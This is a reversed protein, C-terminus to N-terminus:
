SGKECVTLAEDQFTFEGDVSTSPPPGFYPLTVLDQLNYIIYTAITVTSNSSPKTGVMNCTYKKGGLTFWGNWTALPTATAEILTRPSDLTLARRAYRPQQSGPEIQLVQASATATLCAVALVVLRAPKSSVFKM